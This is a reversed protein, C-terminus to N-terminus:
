LTVINLVEIDVYKKGVTKEAFDWLKLAEGGEENFFYDYLSLKIELEPKDGDKVVECLFGGDETRRYSDLYVSLTWFERTQLAKDLVVSKVKALKM